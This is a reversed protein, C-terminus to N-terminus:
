LLTLERPSRTLVRCGGDGLLVDDEIRVGGCRPIYIGPEITIVNGSQLVEHSLPSVRPREHLRLGLGHGLAHTFYRGFGRRRLCRRAVEDLDRANMGGRASAIASSNAELVAGYAERLRGPVRGLGVTRTLDSSYGRVVSGFDILVFEGKRIKRATPRAHPMASRPGSAVLVDFPDSESGKRRNLWSIEAAIELESVGPRLSDLLDAFVADSVSAAEEICAIEQADKVLALSEVLGAAARFSVGPFLSRLSRYQAYTLWDPEFGAVRCGRLVGAAAAGELLGGRPIIRRFRRVERASQLRYRSDSVFYARARTIFAIAHSGTFGTLYRISALSSLILADYGRERMRTQVAAMRADIM